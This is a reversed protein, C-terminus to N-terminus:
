YYNSTVLRNIIEAPLTRTMLKKRIVFPLTAFWLLSAILIVLWSLVQTKPTSSDKFFANLLIGFTVIAGILYTTM